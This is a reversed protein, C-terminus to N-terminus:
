EPDRPDPADWADPVEIVYKGNEQLAIIYEQRDYLEMLNLEYQGPAVIRISEFQDNLEQRLEDLDPRDEEEDPEKVVRGENSADPLTDKDVVDSRASAQASDEQSASEGAAIEADHGDADASGGMADPNEKSPDLSDFGDDAPESSATDTSEPTASDTSSAPDATADTDTTSAAEPSAADAAADGAEPASSSDGTTEVPTSPSDGTQRDLDRPEDGSSVADRVKNAARGVADTVSGSDRDPPEADTPQEDPVEGPHYQFKKGSCEPCGSLMEKSGDEFVHGCNTCQHPM